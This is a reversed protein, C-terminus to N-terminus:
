KTVGLEKMRKINYYIPNDLPRVLDHRDYVNKLQKIAHEIGWMPEFKLAEKFKDSNIHYSRPDASPKIEIEVPVIEAVKKAIQLLTKNEFGVNFTQGNILHSDARLIAEYARAMDQVHINPRLQTGGHVTIRGSALASIALINVILDLRLREAFGCVTAPRVITWSLDKAFDYNKLDEECMLKFNSYDTLPECRDTEVVDAKDKVGYVSSSSAYIFRRVSSNKVAKLIGAFSDYNISKGLDPNMEFSPDNSICALHICADQGHMAKELIVPDRIDGTFNRIVKRHIPKFIQKGYWFTDLVSVQFGNEILHPVLASGVYGAGGIVLVKSKRVM